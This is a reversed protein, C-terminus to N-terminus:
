TTASTHGQLDGDLHLPLLLLHVANRNDNTQMSGKDCSFMQEVQVGPNKEGHVDSTLIHIRGDDVLIGPIGEISAYFKINGLVDPAHRQCWVVPVLVGALRYCGTRFRVGILNLHAERGLWEGVGKRPDKGAHAKSQGDGSGGTEDGCAPGHEHIRHFRESVLLIKLEGTVRVWRLQALACGEAIGLKRLM